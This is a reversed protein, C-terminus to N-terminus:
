PPFGFGPFGSDSDSDSRSCGSGSGFDFGSGSRFCGSDSGSGVAFGSCGSDSGSGAAGILAAVPKTRESL